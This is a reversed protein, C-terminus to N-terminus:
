SDKSPGSDLPLWPTVEKEKEPLILAQRIDHLLLDIEARSSEHNKEGLGEIRRIM